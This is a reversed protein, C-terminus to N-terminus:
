RRGPRAAPALSGAFAPPGTVPSRQPAPLMIELMRRTAAALSHSADYLARLAPDFAPLDAKAADDIAALFGAADEALWGASVVARDYGSFAEATGIVRKGFMLAEAVKTKMGSGDFIPAVVCQAGVYWPALDDVAGIIRLNPSGGFADRLVEMGQGVILTPLPSRPAVARAFWEIGRRNAYFAGGVFLLYRDRRPAIAPRSPLADDLAMPSLYDAGRGYLRRLTESDRRSLCVIADSHRVAQREAAYNAGLLALSLATRKARAAGLFFRAEVNHFFTVVRVHPFARKIPAVLHGLSSGDVFVQGAAVEGVRAVVSAIERPDFGPQGRVARILSPSSRRALQHVTLSEDFVGLLARANLRCLLERGGPPADPDLLTVLLVGAPDPTPDPAPM